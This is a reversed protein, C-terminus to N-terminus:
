SQDNRQRYHASRQHGEALKRDESVLRDVAGLAARNPIGIGTDIVGRFDPNARETVPSIRERSRIIMDVLIIDWRFEKGSVAGNLIM